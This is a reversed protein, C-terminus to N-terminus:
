EVERQNREILWEVYDKADQELDFAAIWNNNKFVDWVCNDNNNITYNDM